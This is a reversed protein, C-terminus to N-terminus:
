VYGSNCNSLQLKRPMQWLKGVVAYTLIISTQIINAMIMGKRSTTRYEYLCLREFLFVPSMEVGQQKIKLHSWYITQFFKTHKCKMNRGCSTWTKVVSKLLGKRWSLHYFHHGSFALTWPRDPTTIDYKSIDVVWQTLVGVLLRFSAKTLVM